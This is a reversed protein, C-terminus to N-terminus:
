DNKRLATKLQARNKQDTIYYTFAFLIEPFHQQYDVARNGAVMELPHLQDTVDAEKKDSLISLLMM